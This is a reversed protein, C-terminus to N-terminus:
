RAEVNWRALVELDHATLDVEWTWGSLKRGGKRVVFGQAVAYFTHRPSVSVRYTQTEFLDSLDM